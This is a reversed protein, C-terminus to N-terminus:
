DTHRTAAALDGTLGSLLPWCLATTLLLVVGGLAYVVPISGLAHALLGAAAAGAPMAIFAVMRYASTVRGLLPRPVIRQRYTVTVVNWTFSGFGALVLALAALAATPALGLVLAAVSFAVMALTVTARATLRASIARTCVAGVVGGVAVLAMALGYTSEPLGLDGTVYLVLISTVAGSVGNVVAVAAALVRLTPHGWLYALGSRLASWLTTTVATVATEHPAPKAQDPGGHLRGAAWWILVAGVLFTAADAVFPATLSQAAWVAGLTPGVLMAAVLISIQNLSNARELQRDEVLEPVVSSAANDHFPAALGLLLGLACLLAISSGVRLVVVAYAFLLAARLIDVRWMLALRNVRDAVVGSVLGVLLWGGTEFVEVLAVQRPDRTLSAAVVPMAGAVLGDGAYSVAGASWVTWFPRGM